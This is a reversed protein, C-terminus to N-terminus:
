RGMGLPVRNAQPRGAASREVIRTWGSPTHAIFPNGKLQRWPDNILVDDFKYVTRDQGNPSYIQMASPVMGKALLILQVHHFNAKDQQFRPWGELWIEGKTDPPTIICLYYRNRLKEAEAGFLFPLPGDAIGKGRM